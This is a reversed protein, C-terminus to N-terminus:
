NMRRSSISIWGTARYSVSAVILASLQVLVIPLPALLDFSSLAVLGIGLLSVYWVLSVTVARPRGSALADARALIELVYPYVGFSLLVAPMISEISLGEQILLIAAVLVSAPQGIAAAIWAIKMKNAALSARLAFNTFAAEIVRLQGAVLEFAKAYVLILGILAKDVLMIDLMLTLMTDKARKIISNIYYPRYSCREHWLVGFSAPRAALFLRAYLGPSLPTALLLSLLLGSALSGWLLQGVAESDSSRDIQLFFAGAGLFLVRLVNSLVTIQYYASLHGISQLRCDIYRQIVALGVYTVLFLNPQEFFGFIALFTAALPLTVAMLLYFAPYALAFVEDRQQRFLSYGTPLAELVLLLLSVKALDILYHALAALGLMNVILWTGVFGALAGTLNLGITKM